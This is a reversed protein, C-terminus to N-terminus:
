QKDYEGELIRYSLFCFVMGTKIVVYKSWSNQLLNIILIACSYWLNRQTCIFLEFELFYFLFLKHIYGFLLMIKMFLYYESSNLSLVDFLHYGSLIAPLYLKLLVSLSHFCTKLIDVKTFYFQSCWIPWNTHPIVLQSNVSASQDQKPHPFTFLCRHTVLERM